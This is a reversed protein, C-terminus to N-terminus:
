LRWCSARSGGASVPGCEFKMKESGCPVDYLRNKSGSKTSAKPDGDIKCKNKLAILCVYDIEDSTDTRPGAIPIPNPIAAYEIPKYSYKTIIKMAEERRIARAVNRVRNAELPEQTYEVYYEGDERVPMQFSLYDSNVVDGVAVKYIGGDVHAWSYGRNYLSVLRVDNLSFVTTWAGGMSVSTRMFYVLAKGPTPAPAPEYAPGMTACGILATSRLVVLRKM